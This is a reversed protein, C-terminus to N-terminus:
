RGFPGKAEGGAVLYSGGVPPPDIHVLRGDRAVLFRFRPGVPPEPWRLRVTRVGGEPDTAVVEATFSATRGTTGVRLADPRALHVTEFPDTVFPAGTSEITLTRDDDRTWVFGRQGTQLTQVHVDHDRTAHAWTAAFAFAVLPDDTQLLLAERRGAEPPGIEATVVKSLTGEASAAIVAQTGLTALTEVGFASVLLAGGAFRVLRSAGAARPVTRAITLALLATAGVAPALLLRDSPTAGAEPLITVCTWAALFAAVRDGRLCRAIGAVVPLAALAAVAAIRGGFRPVMGVLDTPVPPVFTLPATALLLVLNAAYRTPDSWPTAYFVSRTGYGAAALGAVYALSCGAAAAVVARVWGRPAERELLAARLAVLAFAAVGSEKALCALFALALALTASGGRGLRRHAGVAAVAGATFTAAIVANRNAIWGVPLVTAQSVALGLVALVATGRSLGLSRHLAHAAVLLAAFWALSTVHYGAPDSGFLAHDLVMTASALPRFFRVKWDPSTWWPFGGVPDELSEWDAATGFDFLNWPSVPMHGELALQHVRDDAFFGLAFSPLHLLLGFAVVAGLMWRRRGGDAAGRRVDDATM